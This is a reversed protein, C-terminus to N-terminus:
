TPFFFCSIIVLIIFRAWYVYPWWRHMLFVDIFQILFFWFFLLNNYLVKKRLRHALSISLFSFFQFSLPHYLKPYFPLYQLFHFTSSEFTSFYSCNYTTTELTTQILYHPSVLFIKFFYCSVILILALVRPKLINSNSIDM